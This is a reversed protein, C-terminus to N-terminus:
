KFERYRRLSSKSEISEKWDEIVKENIENYVFKKYAKTSAQGGLSEATTEDRCNYKQQLKKLREVASLKINSIKASKYVMKVWKHNPMIEVRKFHILKSKAEREEFTAWGLEGELFENATNFASDGLVWKAAQWQATEIQNRLRPPM